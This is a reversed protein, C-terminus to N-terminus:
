SHPHPHHSALALAVPAQPWGSQEQRVRAWRCAPRGGQSPPRWAISHAARGQNPAHPVAAKAAVHTYPDTPWYFPEIGSTAAASDPYDCGGACEGQAGRECRGSATIASAEASAGQGWVQLEDFGLEDSHAEDGNAALIEWGTEIQMRLIFQLELDKAHM